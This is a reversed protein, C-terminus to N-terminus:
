YYHIDISGYSNFTAYEVKLEITFDGPIVGALAESPVNMPIRHLLLKEMGIQPTQLIYLFVLILIHACVYARSHNPQFIGIRVDEDVIAIVDDAKSELKALVLKMAARADDLCNHSAGEERLDYGM